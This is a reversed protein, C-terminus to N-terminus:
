HVYIDVLLRLINPKTAGQGSGDEEVLLQASSNDFLQFNPIVCSLAYINYTTTYYM